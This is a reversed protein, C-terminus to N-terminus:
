IDLEISQNINLCIFRTGDINMDFSKHHHGFIWIKPKYLRFMLAFASTTKTSIVQPVLHHMITNPCDHTVVIEPKTTEYIDIYTNLEQISCEEDPWWDIDMTRWSQDISWAGGIYMINDIVTGDPIWNPIKKCLYPNDHNGRIFRHNLPINVFFNSDIPFRNRDWFGVGFDGVQVTKKNENNQLFNKYIEMNGHIDGLFVTM